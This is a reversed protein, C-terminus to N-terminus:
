PTYFTRVALYGSKNDSPVHLYGYGEPVADSGTTAAQLRIPSPRTKSFKVYDHLLYLQDTCSVFAGTDIQARPAEPDIKVQPADIEPDEQPLEDLIDPSPTWIPDSFDVANIFANEVRGQDPLSDTGSCSDNDSVTEVTFTSNSALVTIDDSSSPSQHASSLSVCLPTDLSTTGSEDPLDYRFSPRRKM